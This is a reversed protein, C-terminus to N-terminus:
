ISHKPSRSPTRHRSARQGTASRAVVSMLQSRRQSAHLTSRASFLAWRLIVRVVFIVFALSVVTLLANYWPSFLNKKLWGLVGVEVRPPLEMDTHDTM